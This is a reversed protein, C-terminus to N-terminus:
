SERVDAVVNLYSAGCRYNTSRPATASGSHNNSVVRMWLSLYLRLIEIITLPQTRFTPRKAKDRIM